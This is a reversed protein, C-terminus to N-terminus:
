GKKRLITMESHLPVVIKDYQNKREELIDSVARCVDNIDTDHFFVYADTNLYPEILEFEKRPTNYDHESDIHALDIKRDLSKLVDPLIELSNGIHQHIVPKFNNISFCQDANYKSSFNEGWAYCDITHIEADNFGNDEIAKAFCASSFGNSTGTEIIVKAKSTKAFLYLLVGREFLVDKGWETNLDSREIFKLTPFNINFEVFGM